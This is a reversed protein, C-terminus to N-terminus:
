AREGLQQREVAKAGLPPSNLGSLNFVAKIWSLKCSGLGRRRGRTRADAARIAQKVWKLPSRIDSRGQYPSSPLPKFM